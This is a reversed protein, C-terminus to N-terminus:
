QGEGLSRHNPTYESHYSQTEEGCFPIFYDQTEILSMVVIQDPAYSCPPQQSHWALTMLCSIGACLLLDQPRQIVVARMNV